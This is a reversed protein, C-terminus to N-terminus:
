VNGFLAGFPSAVGALYNEAFAIVNNAAATAGDTGADVYNRLMLISAVTTATASQVATTIVTTSSTPNLFDNDRIVIGLHAGVSIPILDIAAAWAATGKLEFTNHEITFGHATGAISIAGGNAGTSTDLGSVFYCNSVLTEDLVDATVNAPVRIGFTTVSATAQLAFTCDHIYARNSTAVTPTLSIGQGGAAPPAFHIFAVEADPASITMIIGAVQTSTIQTRLRKSGSARRTITNRTFGPVGTIVLGAKNIVIPTTVSHSGPLMVIVDGVNATTLSLAYTVTLLAREPRTGDNNNSAPYSQGEFTYQSTPAVFFYRGTTQPLFGFPSGYATILMIEKQYL